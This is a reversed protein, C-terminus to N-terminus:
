TNRGRSMVDAWGTEGAAGAGDRWDPGAGGGFDARGGASGRNSPDRGGEGVWAGAAGCDGAAGGGDRTGARDRAGATRGGRCVRPRVRGPACSRERSDSGRPIRGLLLQHVLTPSPSTRRVNTFNTSLRSWEADQLSASHPDEEWPSEDM